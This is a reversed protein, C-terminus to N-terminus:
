YGILSIPRSYFTRQVLLKTEKSTDAMKLTWVTQMTVVSVVFEWEVM